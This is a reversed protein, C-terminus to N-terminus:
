ARPGRGGQRGFPVAAVDLARVGRGAREGRGSWVRVGACQHVFGADGPHHGGHHGVTGAVVGEAVADGWDTSPHTRTFVEYRYETPEWYGEDLPDDYPAVWEVHLDVGADFFVSPSVIQPPRTWRVEEAGAVEQGELEFWTVGDHVMSAYVDHLGPDLGHTGVVLGPSEGHTGEITQAWWGPALTQNDAAGLFTDLDTVDGGNSTTPCLLLGDTVEWDDLGAV